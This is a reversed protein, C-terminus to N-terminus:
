GGRAVALWEVFIAVSPPHKWRSASRGSVVQVAAMTGTLRRRFLPLQGRYALGGANFQSECPFLFLFM